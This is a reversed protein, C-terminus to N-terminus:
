VRTLLAALYEARDNLYNQSLNNLDYEGTTNRSEYLADANDLVFPQLNVLAYRYALSSQAHQYLTSGDLGDLRTISLSLNNTSEIYSFVQSARHAFNGSHVSGGGLGFLESLHQVFSFRNHDVM